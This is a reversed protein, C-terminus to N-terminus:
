EEDELSTQYLEETREKARKAKDKQIGIIEDLLYDEATEVLNRVWSQERLEDTAEEILYRQFQAEKERAWIKRERAKESETMNSYSSEGRGGGRLMMMGDSECIAEDKLFNQYLSDHEQPTLNEIKYKIQGLVQEAVNHQGEKRIVKRAPARRQVSQELESANEYSRGTNQKHGLGEAYNRSAVPVDRQMRETSVAANNFYLWGGFLSAGLIAYATIPKM